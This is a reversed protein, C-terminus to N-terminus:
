DRTKRRFTGQMRPKARLGSQSKGKKLLFTLWLIPDLLEGAPPAKETGGLIRLGEKTPVAEYKKV